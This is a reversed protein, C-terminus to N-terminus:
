NLGITWAAAEENRCAGPGFHQANQFADVRARDIKLVWFSGLVRARFYDPFANGESGGRGNGFLYLSCGPDNITVDWKQVPSAMILPRAIDNLSCPSFRFGTAVRFLRRVPQETGSLPM